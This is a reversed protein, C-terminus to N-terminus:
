NTIKRAASPEQIILKNTKMMQWLAYDRKILGKRLGDAVNQISPSWTLSNLERKAFCEKLCWVDIQLSKELTNGDKAVVNFLNKSYLKANIDLQKSTPENFLHRIWISNDFAYLLAHIEAAMVFRTVWECRSSGYHLMNAHNYKGILVLVFGIQSKLKKVNAFPADTLLILKVSDMHINCFHLKINSIEQGHTIIKSLQNINSSKPESEGISLLQTAAFLDPRNM